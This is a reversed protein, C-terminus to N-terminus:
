MEQLARRFQSVRRSQVALAHLALLQEMNEIVIVAEEFERAAERVFRLKLVLLIDERRANNRGEQLLEQYFPSERM